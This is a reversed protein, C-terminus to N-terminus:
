GGIILRGNKKYNDEAEGMIRIVQRKSVGRLSAFAAMIKVAKSVKLVGAKPSTGKGKVKVPAKEVKKKSM